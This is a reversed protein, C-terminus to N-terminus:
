EALDLDMARRVGDDTERGRALELAARVGHDAGHARALSWSSAERVLPSPDFSLAKLLARRGEETPRNGLVLAANRALGERRPRQLPSGRFRESFGEGADLWSVLGDDALAPHTGFRESLDPTDKGFPCVESCVDCGFAWDGLHERLSRPVAGRNEITQYSICDPAHVRGPAFLADTPCADLCARCTGCSGAPPSETPVLPEAILLEGLFFWPGFDPHLLNAARSEFGLGARAAHSRELVPGADVVKRWPGDFGEAALRRALKELRKGLVNHYDRGAAYRAVRAGDPLAFDPRSHALGVCLISQGEPLLLAPDVTRERHRELYAMSGHRGEDLWREFRAAAPPPALPAVGALDFGVERALELARETRDM